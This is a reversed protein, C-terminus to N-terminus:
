ETSDFSKSPKGPSSYLQRPLQIQFSTSSSLLRWKVPHTTQLLSCSTLSSVAKHLIDGLSVAVLYCRAAPPLPGHLQLPKTRGSGQPMTVGQSRGEWDLSSSKDWSSCISTNRPVWHLKIEKGIRLLRDRHDLASSFRSDSNRGGVRGDKPTDTLSVCCQFHGETCVGASGALCHIHLYVRRCTGMYFRSKWRSEDGTCFRKCETTTLVNTKPVRRECHCCRQPLLIHFPTSHWTYQDGAAMQQPKCRAGEFASLGFHVRSDAWAGTQLREARLFSRLFSSQTHLRYCDDEKPTPCVERM